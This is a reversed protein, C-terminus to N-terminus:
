CEFYDAVLEGAAWPSCAFCVLDDPIVFGVLTVPSTCALKTCTLAGAKRVFTDACSAPSANTDFLDSQPALGGAPSGQSDRLFSAQVAAFDRGLGPHAAFVIAAPNDTSSPYALSVTVIPRGLADNGVIMVDHHDATAHVEWGTVGPLSSPLTALKPPPSQPLAEATGLPPKTPDGEVACALLGSTALATVVSSAHRVRM